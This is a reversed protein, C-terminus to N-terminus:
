KNHRAVQHNLECVLIRALLKFLKFPYNSLSNGELKQMSNPTTQHEYYLTKNKLKKDAKDTQEVLTCSWVLAEGWGSQM